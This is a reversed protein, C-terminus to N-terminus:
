NKITPNPPYRDSWPQAQELQAALAYLLRENGFAAGIQIGLPLNDQSWWLPVNMAPNGSVNYLAAFAGYPLCEGLYRDFNFDDGGTQCDSIPYPYKAITPTMLCDYEAFFHALQATVQHTYQIALGYEAASCQAGIAGFAQTHPEFPLQSLPTQTLKALTQMLLYTNVGIIINLNQTFLQGDISFNAERVQHGLDTLLQATKTVAEAQEPAIAEGFYTQTMFAINLPQPPQTTASLFTGSPPAVQYPAGLEPGATADMLAANDRVSRSIGHNGGLGNWIEGVNPGVPIRARTPKMAFTGCCASPVRM